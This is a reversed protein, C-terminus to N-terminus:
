THQMKMRLCEESPRRGTNDKAQLELNLVRVKYDICKKKHLSLKIFDSWIM